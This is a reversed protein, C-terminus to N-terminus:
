QSLRGAAPATFRYGEGRLTEIMGAHSGLKERLRRVHTDVTRTDMANEYNWVDHLLRERSQPKGRREILLCLLKFETTTLELRRGSLTIQFNGKDIRFEGCEVIADRQAGGARVRRLVAEVRLLLERPSFPKTVYDDAGIELGAVRDLPEGRATLMVVPIAATEPNRKLQRCVEQGSMQPLMLDLVILDPREEGALRLASLGDSAVLVSHGAGQLRHRVLDIVDPEDDVVLVRAATAAAAPSTM